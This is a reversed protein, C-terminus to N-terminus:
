STNITEIVLETHRLRPFIMNLLCFLWWDRKLSLFFLGVHKQLTNKGKKQGGVGGGGGGGWGVVRVVCKYINAGAYQM